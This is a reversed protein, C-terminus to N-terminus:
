EAVEEAADEDGLDDGEIRRLGVGDAVTALTTIVVEEGSALGKSIYAHDADRFDVTVERIQLKGDQMVWVTDQNRVYDRNLRVVDEIARGEMEAEILSGLILPPSHTTKGLPDAVTILVRALRTREDVMGIMRSVVAHREAGPPWADPNRLIVNSGETDSDPFQVWRLSRVPVAAMIWYERDGVLQALDDGPSVQSGVNVSRSMILADFPAVINSRDLTLKAREVAAEAANVEALISAIQPARLVLARNTDDITAELLELEKKALSQRGEEIKLSAEKQELESKRISLENEFDAPDIRLLLEGKEVMGGPVFNPSMEIVQGGVRSGLVIERAPEVTGLVVIKPRYTGREVVLTEVLAASKRTANVQKATPETHNIVVIAGAAGALIALCCIATGLFSLWRRTRSSKARSRSDDSM